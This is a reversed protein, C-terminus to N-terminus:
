HLNEPQIIAQIGHVIVPQDANINSFGYRGFYAKKGPFFRVPVYTVSGWTFNNWTGANWNTTGTFALSSTATKVIAESRDKEFTHTISYAAGAQGAALM